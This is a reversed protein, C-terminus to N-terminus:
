NLISSNSCHQLFARGPWPWRLPAGPPGALLVPQTHHGTWVLDGDRHSLGRPASIGQGGCNVGGEMEQGQRPSCHGWCSARPNLSGHLHIASVVTGKFTFICNLFQFNYIIKFLLPIFSACFVNLFTRLTFAHAAMAETGSVRLRTDKISLRFQEDKWHRTCKCTKGCCLPHFNEQCM